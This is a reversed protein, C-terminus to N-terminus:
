FVLWAEDTRVEEDRRPGGEIRREIRVVLNWRTM